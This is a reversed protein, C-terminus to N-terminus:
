RGDAGDRALGVEVDRGDLVPRPGEADLRLRELEVQASEAVFRVKALCERDLDSVIDALHEVKRRVLTRTVSSCFARPPM